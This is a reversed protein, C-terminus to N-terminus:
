DVWFTRKETAEEFKGCAEWRARWDTAKSASMQTLECKSWSGGRLFRLFHKCEGCYRGPTKHYMVYMAVIRRPRPDLDVLDEFGPLTPM